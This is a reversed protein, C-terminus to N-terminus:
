LQELGLEEAPSDQPIECEKQQWYQTPWNWRPIYFFFFFGCLKSVHLTLGRIRFNQKLSEVLSIFIEM